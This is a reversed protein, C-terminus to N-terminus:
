LTYFSIGDCVVTTVVGPALTAQTTANVLLSETSGELNKIVANWGNEVSPLNVLLGATATSFLFYKGIDTSSLTQNAAINSFVVNVKVNALQNTSYYLKSATSDTRLEGAVGAAAGGQAALFVSSLYFSGLSGDGNTITPTSISGTNNSSALFNYVWNNNALNAADFQDLIGLQSAYIGKTPAAGNMNTSTTVVVATDNILQLFGSGPSVIQNTTTAGTSFVISSVAPYTAWRGTSSILNETTIGGGGGNLQTGNWYVNTATGDTTLQGNV